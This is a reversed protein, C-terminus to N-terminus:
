PMIIATMMVGFLMTFIMLIAFMIVFRKGLTSQIDGFGGSNSVEKSDEPTMKKSMENLIDDVHQNRLNNIIELFDSKIDEPNTAMDISVEKEAKIEITTKETNEQMEPVDILLRAGNGGMLSAEQKGVIRQGEDTYADISSMRELTAKVVTKADKRTHDLVIKTM